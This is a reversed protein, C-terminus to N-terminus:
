KSFSASSSPFMWTLLSGLCVMLNWGAMRPGRCRYLLAARQTLASVGSGSGILRGSMLCSVIWSFSIM